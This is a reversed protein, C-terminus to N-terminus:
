RGERTKGLSGVLQLLKEKTKPYTFNFKKHFAEISVPRHQDKLAKGLMAKDNVVDIFGTVARYDILNAPDDWHYNIFYSRDLLHKAEFTMVSWVSFCVSSDSILEYNDVEQHRVIRCYGSAAYKSYDRKDRPHLKIYLVTNQKDMASVIEEIYYLDDYKLYGSPGTFFSIIKPSAKPLSRYKSLRDWNIFGGEIYKLDRNIPFSERIKRHFESPYFYYECLVNNHTAADINFYEIKITGVGSEKAKKIVAVYWPTTDVETIINETGTLDLWKYIVLYDILEPLCLLVNKKILSREKLLCRMTVIMEKYLSLAAVLNKFPRSISRDHKILVYSQPIGLYEAMEKTEGLLVTEARSTLQCKQVFLIKLAKYIVSIMFNLDLRDKLGLHKRITFIIYQTRLAFLDHYPKRGSRALMRDYNEFGLKVEEVLSM